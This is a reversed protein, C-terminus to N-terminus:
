ARSIVGSRSPFMAGGCTPPSRHRRGRTAGVSCPTPGGRMGPAACDRGFTRMRCGARRAPWGSSSRWRYASCGARPRNTRMLSGNGNAFADDDGCDTWDGHIRHRMIANRTTNGVDFVAGRATWRAQDLWEQFGAMMRAPNWGHDVLTEAVILTMSSDDSWTGPPQNWTGFGRMGTVPDADRMQRGTFEVPVGLADAVVVGVLSGVLRDHMRM